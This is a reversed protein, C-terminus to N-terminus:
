VRRAEPPGGRDARTSAPIASPEVTAGRIGLYDFAVVGTSADRTVPALHVPTFGERELAALATLRSPQGEYTPRVSLEAQLAVVHQVCGRAGEIVELDCGQTDTKLLIRPDSIHGCV